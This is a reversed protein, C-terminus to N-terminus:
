WKLTIYKMGTLKTGAVAFAMAMLHDGYTDITAPQPEGGYISLTDHSDETRIGM